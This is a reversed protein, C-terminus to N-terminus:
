IADDKPAHTEEREKQSELHAQLKRFVMDQLAKEHERIVMALVLADEATIHVRSGDMDVLCLGKDTLHCHAILM